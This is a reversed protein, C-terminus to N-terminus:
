ELILITDLGRDAIYLRGSDDVAIDRPDDLEVGNSLVPGITVLSEGTSKFVDIIKESRDLVYIHGLRDVAVAIPREWDGGTVVRAERVGEANFRVVGADFEHLVFIRGQSDAVLDRPRETREMLTSHYTGNPEFMVVRELDTDLLFWSGFINRAGAALDALSDQQGPRGSPTAFTHLARSIPEFVARETVAYANNTNDWWAGRLRDQRAAGLLSGEPDVIAVLPGDDQAVILTGDARAAIGIPDRLSVGSVSLRRVKAWPTQGLSPLLITRHILSLWQRAVQRSDGEVLGDASHTTDAVRQLIESAPVWHGRNLFVTALGIQAQPTGPFVEENEIATVFATGADDLRGLLLSINGSQVLAQSRWDLVPYQDPNFLFLVRNFKAQAAELDALGQARVLQIDGELVLAGASSPTNAYTDRLRKTAQLSSDVDGARWYQQALRLLAQPALPSEPFEEVVLTYQQLAAELDDESELRQGDEFFRQAADTEQQEAQVSLRAMGLAALICVLLGVPLYPIGPRM